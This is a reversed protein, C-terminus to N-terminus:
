KLCKEAERIDARSYGHLRAWAYAYVRGHKAVLSRVTECTIGAPLKPPDAFAASSLTLLAAFAIAGIIAKRDDRNM